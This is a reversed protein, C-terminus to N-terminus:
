APLSKLICPVVVPLDGSWPERGRVRSEGHLSAFAIVRGPCVSIVLMHDDISWSFEIEGRSTAYVEPVERVYSALLSAVGEAIELTEPQVGKAGEGNWDDEMCDDVQNLAKLMSNRTSEEKEAELLLRYAMIPWGSDRWGGSEM